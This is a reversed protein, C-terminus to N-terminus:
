SMKEAQHKAEELTRYEWMWFEADPFQDSPDHEFAILRYGSNKGKLIDFNGCDSEWKDYQMPSIDAKKWKM